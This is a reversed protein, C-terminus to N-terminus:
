EQDAELAERAKELKIQAAINNENLTLAKEYSSLADEFRGLEMYIDGLFVTAFYGKGVGLPDLEITKVLYPLAAEYEGLKYHASAMYFFGDPYSPVIETIRRFYELSERPNADDIMVIIGLLELAMVDDPDSNLAKTFEAEARPTMRKDNYLMGMGTHAVAVDPDITLIERLEAKAEVQMTVDVQAMAYYAFALKVLSNIDDPNKVYDEEAKTVGVLMSDTWLFCSYYFSLLLSNQPEKVLAQEFSLKASEWEKQYYLNMGEALEPNPEASATLTFLLTFLLCFVIYKYM